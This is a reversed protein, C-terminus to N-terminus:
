LSAPASRLSRALQTRCLWAQCAAMLCGAGQMSLFCTSCNTASLIARIRLLHGSHANVLHAASMSLCSPDVDLLFRLPMTTLRLAGKKVELAFQTKELDVQLSKVAHEMSSLQGRAQNFNVM